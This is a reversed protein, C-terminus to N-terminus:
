QPPMKSQTSAQFNKGQSRPKNEEFRPKGNNDAFERFFAFSDKPLGKFSPMKRESM